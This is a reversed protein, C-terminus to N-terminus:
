EDKNWRIRKRFIGEFGEFDFWRDEEYPELTAVEEANLTTYVRETTIREVRAGPVEVLGGGAAPKMALGHFINDEDDGLVARVEGLVEGTPGMVPAGKPTVLWAVPKEDTM